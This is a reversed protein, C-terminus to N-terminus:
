LRRDNNQDQKHYKRLWILFDLVFCIVPVLGFFIILALLLFLLPHHHM